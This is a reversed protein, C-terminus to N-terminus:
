AADRCMQFQVGVRHGRQFPQGVHGLGQGGGGGLHGVREFKGDGVGLAREVEVAGLCGEGFCGVDDVGPVYSRYRALDDQSLGTRGNFGNM